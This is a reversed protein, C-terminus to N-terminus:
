KFATLKMRVFRKRGPWEDAAIINYEQGNIKVRNRTDLFKAHYWTLAFCVEEYPQSEDGIQEDQSQALSLLMGRRALSEAWAITKEGFSSTSYVKEVLVVDKDFHGTNVKESILRSYAIGRFSM